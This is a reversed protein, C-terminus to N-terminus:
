NGYRMKSNVSFLQQDELRLATLKGGWVCGTDLAYVNARDAKGELAAWHGFVIRTKKLAKGEHSFWPLFGTPQSSLSGKASFEMQGKSDCFRMRTFYNTITRLRDFGELDDSWCNPQNGYMRKFFEAALTSQLIAEVERARKHAKKLSWQPPIGAHVMTFGLPEDTVLLPQSCLWKMLKDADPAQLIDNFTDSRKSKITGSYVALLHLDHNGLTVVVRDRIRYLFRLTELSKPGRNVLDGALWLRDNDSFNIHQLLAQLEDYCGQIDGIAYTAM